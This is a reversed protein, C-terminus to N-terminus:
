HTATKWLPAAMSLNILGIFVIQIQCPLTGLLVHCGILRNQRLDSLCWQEFVGDTSMWLWLWVSSVDRYPMAQGRIHFPLKPPLPYALKSLRCCFNSISSPSFMVEKCCYPQRYCLTHPQNCSSFYYPYVKVLCYLSSHHHDESTLSALNLIIQSQLCVRIYLLPSSFQYPLIQAYHQLRVCKTLNNTEVRCDEWALPSLTGSPRPEKRSAKGRPVCDRLFYASGLM